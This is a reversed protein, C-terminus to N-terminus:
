IQPKKGGAIVLPGTNEFYLALATGFFLIFKQHTFESLQFFRGWTSMMKQANNPSKLLYSRPIESVNLSGTAPFFHAIAAAINKVM